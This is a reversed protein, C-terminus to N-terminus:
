SVRAAKKDRHYRLAARFCVRLVEKPLPASIPLVLARNGELTLTDAFSDRFRSILDTQCHFFIGVQEPASAKWAIRIPTGAKVSYSPENWKLTETVEGVGETQAAVELILQRVMLLKARAAAPYSDFVARVPEPVDDAM